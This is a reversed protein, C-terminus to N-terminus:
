LREFDKGDYDFGVWGLGVWGLWGVRQTLNKLSVDILDLYYLDCVNLTKEMM